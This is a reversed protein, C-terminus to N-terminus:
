MKEGCHYCSCIPGLGHSVHINLQAKHFHASSTTWQHDAQVSAFQISPCLNSLHLCILHVSAFLSAHSHPHWTNYLVMGCVNLSTMMWTHPTGDLHSLYGDLAPTIFYLSKIIWDQKCM